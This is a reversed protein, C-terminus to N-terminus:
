GGTPLGDRGTWRGGPTEDGHSDSDYSGPHQAGHVGPVGYFAAV